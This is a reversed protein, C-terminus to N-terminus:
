WEPPAARKVRWRLLLWGLAVGLAAGALNQLLDALESSRKPILGQLAETAFAYVVLLAIRTTLRRPWNSASALLGLLFFGILHGVSDLSAFYFSKVESEHRGAIAFPNQVLL